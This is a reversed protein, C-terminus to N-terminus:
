LGDGPVAERGSGGFGLDISSRLLSELGQVARGHDTRRVLDDGAQLVVLFEAVVFEAEPAVVAQRVVLLPLGELEEDLFDRGGELSRNRVSISPNSSGSCRALSGNRTAISM